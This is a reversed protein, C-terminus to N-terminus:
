FEESSTLFILYLMKEMMTHIGIRLFIHYYVYM